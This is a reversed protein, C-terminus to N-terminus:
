AELKIGCLEATKAFTANVAAEKAAEASVSPNNGGLAAEAAARNALDGANRGASLYGALTVGDDKATGNICADIAIDMCANNKGMTAHFSVRDREKAAGATQGEEFAQQFVAPHEAKLTALDM